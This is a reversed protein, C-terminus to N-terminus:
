QYEAIQFTKFNRSIKTFFDSDTRAGLLLCRRFAIDKKTLLAILVMASLCHKKKHTTKDAFSILVILSYNYRQLM